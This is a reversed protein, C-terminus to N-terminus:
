RASGPRQASRGYPPFPLDTIWVMRELATVARAPYSRADGGQLTAVLAARKAEGSVLFAVTRSRSLAEATLTLRVHEVGYPRTSLTLATASGTADGPFLSATHGDAGLGLLQLDFTPTDGLVRELTAAYAEAAARAQAVLVRDDGRRGDSPIADGEPTPWAFVQDAPVPVHDLLAERTARANSAPDNMPVFREDGWFVYTADWPLDRRDALARYLGLPTTGGALAVVFRGRERVSALMAAEFVARASGVLDNTIVLERPM